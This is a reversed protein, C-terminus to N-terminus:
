LKLAEPKGPGPETHCVRAIAAHSDYHTKLDRPIRNNM